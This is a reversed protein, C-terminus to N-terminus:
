RCGKCQRTPTVTVTIASADSDFGTDEGLLKSTGTITLNTSRDQVVAETITDVQDFKRKAGNWEWLVARGGLISVRGKAIHPLADKQYDITAHSITRM